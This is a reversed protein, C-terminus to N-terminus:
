LGHHPPSYTILDTPLRCKRGFLLFYPSAKTTTHKSTNYALTASALHQDWNRIKDEVLRKIINIIIGNVAEVIGQTRPCYKSSNIKKIELIKTLEEVIKNNFHSANDSQIIEPTGHVCIVHQFIKEATVKATAERVPVSIAYRTLSETMVLVYTNQNLTKPFPGVYDIQIRQMVRDVKIPQLPARHAGTGSKMTACTTCTKVYESIDAHMKTWWFRMKIKGVTKYIGLHGSFGDDHFNKIITTRMSAPIVLKKPQIEYDDSKGIYWL